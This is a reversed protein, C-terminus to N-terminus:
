GVMRRPEKSPPYGFWASYVRSFYSPTMGVAEAAESVTDGARLREQAHGMRLEQIWSLPAKGAIRQLARQLTRPSMAVLRALDEVSFGPTRLNGTAVATIRELLALDAETKSQPAASEEPPAPPLHAELARLLDSTLIPKALFANAGAAMAEPEAASGRASLLVIPLETLGPEARVARCLAVGDMGPMMIDSLLLGIGGRRLRALAAPGDAATEVAYAGSLRAALYARLEPHDEVILVRGPGASSTPRPASAVREGYPEELSIDAVTLHDTGTPLSLAFTAGPGGSALLRLSGGQAETLERALALGIGAGEAPRDDGSDVQFYRDFIREALETRVGPGTDAVEVRAGGPEARLSVRVAGGRPTFKLANGLLNSLAKELLDHDAWVELAAEAAFSLQIGRSAALPAHRAVLVELTQALALRCARVRLRGADLRVVDFLQDVLERLREANRQALALRPNEGSGAALEELSGMVLMLPTRLEHSLNAVFRSKTADVEALQRAQDAIALNNARLAATQRAVEDELAQVRLRRRRSRLWAGAASLGVGSGVLALPFLRSEVFTPARTFALRICPGWDGGLRAQVEVAHAGAPLRNWSAARVDAGERWDGDSLRWRFQVQEPRVFEPVSWRIELEQEAPTLSLAGAAPREVGNVRVGDLRPQLTAAPPLARPDIVVVGGMTPFWIRGDPTREVSWQGGNTEANVMGDRTDIRLASVRLTDDELARFFQEKEVVLVGRNTGLWLRGDGDDLSSHVNHEGLSAAVCRAPTTLLAEVPRIYCLGADETGLWLADGDPRAGRIDTSPPAHEPARLGEPTALLLGVGSAVVLFREADLQLLDRPEHVPGGPGLLERYGGEVRRYLGERALIWVSGDPTELWTLVDRISPPLADLHTLSGDSALAAPAGNAQVTMAGAGLPRMMPANFTRAGWDLPVLEDDVVRAPPGVLSAAWLGEGDWRVVYVEGTGPLTRALAPRVHVLGDHTALWLGGHGDSIIPSGDHEISTIAVDNRWLARDRLTWVAGGAERFVGGERDGVRLPDGPGRGTFPAIQLPRLQPDFRYFNDIDDGVVMSGDPAPWLTVLRNNHLTPLEARTWTRFSAGDFCSLGEFSTIWLYGAPDMAVDNIHDLPLGDEAGWRDVMWGPDPSVTTERALAARLPTLLLLLSRIM